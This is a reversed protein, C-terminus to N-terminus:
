DSETHYTSFVGRIVTNPTPVFPIPEHTQPDVLWDLYSTHYTRGYQDKYAVCVTFWAEVRGFGDFGDMNKRLVEDGSEAVFRDSGPFLVAGFIVNDPGSCRNKQQAMLKKLDSTINLWGGAFVGQAANNSFNKVVIRYELNANAESDLSLQTQLGPPSDSLGVWPRQSLRSIRNADEIAGWQKGAYFTYIAAIVVAFMTCVAITRNNGNPEKIGAWWKKIKVPTPIIKNIGRFTRQFYTKSNNENHAPSNTNLVGTPVGTTKSVKEKSEGNASQSDERKPM